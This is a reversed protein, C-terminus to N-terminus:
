ARLLTVGIADTSEFASIWTTGQYSLEVQVLADRPINTAEMFLGGKYPRVLGPFPGSEEEDTMLRYKCSFGDRRYISGIENAYTQPLLQLRVSTHERHWYAIVKVLEVVLRDRQTEDYSIRQRDGVIGGQDDVGVERVEVVRVNSALGHSIEDTVWRHTTWKGGDIPDRRTTFGILAHSTRIRERVADTIQEGYVEEGSIVRDGFAEIIPFVLERVWSDRPNYGFGVFIKMM